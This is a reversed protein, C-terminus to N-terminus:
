RGDSESGEAAKQAAALAEAAALTEALAERLTDRTESSCYRVPKGNHIARVMVHVGPEPKVSYLSSIQVVGGIISLKILALLPEVIARLRAIENVLLSEFCLEVDGPDDINAWAQRADVLDRPYEEHPWDDSEAAAIAMRELWERMEM